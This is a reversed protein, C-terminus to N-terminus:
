ELIDLNSPVFDLIGFQYYWKYEIYHITVEFYGSGAVFTWGDINVSMKSFVPHLGNKM